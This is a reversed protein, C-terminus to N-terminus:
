AGLLAAKRRQGRWWMTVGTLALLSMALGILDIWVWEGDKGLFAKGTHLDLVLRSLSIPEGADSPLGALATALQADAQWRRGDRSALLGKDRLAVVISGDPQSAASSADGKLVRQWKSDKGDNGNEQLWVGNRAAAIRGWRTEALARIQTEGVEEVAILGDGSLRYLGGLTGVYTEGSATRLSSRAENRGAKGTVAQYGPLWQAAVKIEETGLAKRHSMFIATVAVILIPLALILSSWTHWSRPKFNLKM